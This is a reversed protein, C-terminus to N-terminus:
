AEGFADAQVAVVGDGAIEAEGEAFSITRKVGDDTKIKTVTKATTDATSNEGDTRADGNATSMIKIKDGDVTVGKIMTRSKAFAKSMEDNTVAKSISKTKIDAGDALNGVYLGTTDATATAM